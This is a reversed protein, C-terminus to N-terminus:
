RQNGVSKFRNDCFKFHYRQHRSKYKKQKHVTPLNVDIKHYILVINKIELHISSFKSFWFVLRFIISIIYILIESRFSQFLNCYKNKIRLTYELFKFWCRLIKTLNWDFTKLNHFQDFNTFNWSSFSISQFYSIKTFNTYNLIM